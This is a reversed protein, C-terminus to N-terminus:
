QSRETSISSQRLFEQYELGWEYMKNLVELFRQGMDTLSYEVRPPVVPYVHRHVLQDRELERLQQTLYGQRISPLARLLENFRKPGDKLMWIIVLKWKGAVINQAIAVPCKLELLEQRIDM